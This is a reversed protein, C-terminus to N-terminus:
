RRPFLFDMAPTNDLPYLYSQPTGKPSGSTSPDGFSFASADYFRSGATARVSNRQLHDGKGHRLAMLRTVGKGNVAPVRLTILGRKRVVKGSARTTEAGFSLCKDDSTSPAATCEGAMADYDSYGFTWQKTASPNYRAVAGGPQFGNTFRFVYLLSQSDTAALAEALAPRSLDAVRMRVVFGPKARLRGIRVSRLDAGKVKNRAGTAGLASYDAIADGRADRSTKRVLPARSADRGGSALPGSTQTFVMPSAVHGAPEGPKKADHDYVVQLRHTKQNTELAFFDALSRDGEPTTLSCGLGNLCISDYHMPHSTARVQSFTRDSSLANLSQNVYVHWTAKFTGLNPDGQSQSGYFAVAVRGPKGDAALWPFVTTRVGDRDVQLPKSFGLDRPDNKPAVASGPVNGIEQNCKSLDRHHLTVLYSHFDVKDAYALYINGRRDADATVFGARPQRKDVAAVCDVFSAGGDYSLSLNVKSGASWGFFVVRTAPDQPNMRAPLTRMPGPFDPAAGAIATDPGYTLGGDDSRQVVINRPQQQNYSLLVSDEDIFTLWQRDALAGTDQVGNGAVPVTQLSRGSDPSTSTAFGTLPGLGTYAYQYHNELNKKPALAIACDGGGGASQQGRPPTGLLHFQKGGDTSVQAYDAASGFGTPGCTYIRGDRDSEILPEAEDRQPDAAVSASFGLGKAPASALSNEGSGKATHLVLKGTYPQPTSNAFGCAQVEYTAAPLDSGTVRETTQSTDSSGVANESEEGGPDGGQRVVTLIEDNAGSDVVPEWTISFDFTAAVKQYAGDPVSISIEEIDAPSAGSDCDSTPNAGPSITGTWTITRTATRTPVTVSQTSPEAADSSEQSTELSLTATGVVAASLALVLIRRM